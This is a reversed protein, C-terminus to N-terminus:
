ELNTAPEASSVSNLKYDDSGIGDPSYGYFSTVYGMSRFLSQESERALERAAIKAIRIDLAEEKLAELRERAKEIGKNLKECSEELANAQNRLNQLYEQQEYKTM